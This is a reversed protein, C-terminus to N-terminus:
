PLIRSLEKIECTFISHVTGKKVVLEQLHLNMKTSENFVTMKTKKNIEENITVKMLKELCHLRKGTHDIQKM